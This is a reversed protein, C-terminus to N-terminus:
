LVEIKQYKENPKMKRKSRRRYKNNSSNNKIESLDIVLGKEEKEKRETKAATKM